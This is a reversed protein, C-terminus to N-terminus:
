NTPHTSLGPRNFMPNLGPRPAMPPADGMAAGFFRGLLQRRQMENMENLIEFPTELHGELEYLRDDRTETDVLWYTVTAMPQGFRSRELVLKRIIRTQGDFEILAGRLAPHRHGPKLTAKITISSAPLGPMPEQRALDFDRLVDDLLRDVQMSYVEAGLRLWVPTEEAPFRFGKGTGLALWFDGKFDRGWAFHQPTNISEVVYRDGRTWLRTVRSQQTALYNQELAESDKRVEVLYCRDLPLQYAKRAERVITEPSARAPTPQSGLFVVLLVAAAASLGGMWRVARSAFPLRHRSLRMPQVPAPQTERGPGSVTRQIRDFLARPDISDARRDLDARVLTDLTTEPQATPDWM